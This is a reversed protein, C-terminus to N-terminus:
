KEILNSSFLEKIQLIITCKITVIKSHDICDIFSANLYGHMFIIGDFHTTCLEIRYFHSFFSNIESCHKM